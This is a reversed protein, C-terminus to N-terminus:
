IPQRCIRCRAKRAARIAKSTPMLRAGRPLATAIVSIVVLWICFGIVNAGVEATKRVNSKAANRRYADYIQRQEIQNATPRPPEWQPENAADELADELAHLRDIDDYPMVHDRVRQM